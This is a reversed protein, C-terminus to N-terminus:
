PSPGREGIGLATGKGDLMGFTELLSTHRDLDGATFRRDPEAHVALDNSIELLKSVGAGAIELYGAHQDRGQYAGAARIFRSILAVLGQAVGIFVVEVRARLLLQLKV